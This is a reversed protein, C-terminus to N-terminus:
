STIRFSLSIIGTYVRLSIAFKKPNYFKIRIIIQYTDIFTNIFFLRIIMMSNCDIKM